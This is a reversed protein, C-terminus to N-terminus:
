KAKGICYLNKKGRIYLKGDAVAPSAFVVDDLEYKSLLEFEAAAKFVSLTGSEGISYIKGDIIIPSASVSGSGLRESWAQDGTKANVCVAINEKDLLWFVHGSYALLSPVYATGKKKDWVKTVGKEGVKLAIMSRDGGGDGAIAFIMGDLSISGGVTRLPAKDFTWQYNWMTKGNSPDYAAVGATSTVIVDPGSDVKELLFPISYSARFGDRKSSWMPKGTKTDYAQVEAPGHIEMDGQDNSLIIKDGVVMPSLGAGHDSRFAGLDRKWLETGEYDHAYLAIKGGDWFISYVREGDAASTSTAPSNLKNTKANGGPIEKKWLVKGNTDVCYFLRLKEDVSASQFFIKGKSVIPSSIGKGPIPLTWLINKATIQVPINKDESIGTGNPGHFRPWDAASGTISTVLLCLLLLCYKGTTRFRM